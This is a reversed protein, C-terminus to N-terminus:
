PVRRNAALAQLEKIESAFAAAITPQGPLEALPAICGISAASPHITITVGRGTRKLVLPWHRCARPKIAAIERGSQLGLLHISCLAKGQRPLLFPCTGQEDSPEIEIDGGDDVFVDVYEDAQKLAPVLRALEDMLGDIVSREKRSVSM